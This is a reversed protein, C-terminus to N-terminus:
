VGSLVFGALFPITDLSRAGFVNMMWVGPMLVICVLTVFGTLWAPSVPGGDPATLLNLLAGSWPALLAVALSAWIGSWQLDWGRARALIVLAGAAVAAGLHTAIALRGLIDLDTM